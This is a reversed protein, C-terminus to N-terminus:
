GFLMKVYSRKEVKRWSIKNLYMDVFNWCDGHIVNSILIQIFLAVRQKETMKIYAQTIRYSSDKIKLLIPVRNTCKDQEFM